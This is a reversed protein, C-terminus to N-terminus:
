GDDDADQGVQKWRDFFGRRRPQRKRMAEFRRAFTAEEGDRDAVDRVDVALSVAQDYARSAVLEELRAWAADGDRRLATLRRQRARESAERAKNARAAEATARKARRREALARLRAVTRRGERHRVKRTGRFARLLEDGLALDPEDAARRLWADKERAPLGALWRRFIAGDDPATGSATAAAAVLDADIRLFAVMAELPPTLAALGPPVPPEVEDEDIDDGQVALLWALYAARLDGRMLEARLPALALLSGPSEEDEEPEDTDNTLDVVLHAGASTLRGGGEGAFYPAIAKADIRAKPFRFMLRRTGWNAFYLHADFYRAVLKAPDAELDGWQYENRLEAMEKASLRRDLALFEYWQYESV